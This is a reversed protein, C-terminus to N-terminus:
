LGEKGLDNKETYLLGLRSLEAVIGDFTGADRCSVTHVHIGNTLESL